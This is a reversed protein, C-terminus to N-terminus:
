RTTITLKSNYQTVPYEYSDLLVKYVSYGGIENFTVGTAITETQVVGFEEVSLIEKTTIIYVDLQTGNDYNSCPITDMTWTGNLSSALASALINISEAFLM